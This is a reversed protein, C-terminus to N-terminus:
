LRFDSRPPEQGRCCGNQCPPASEGRASVIIRGAPVGKAVLAAKAAEARRLSLTPNYHESGTADTYGVVRIPSRMGEWRQPIREFAAMLRANQSGVEKLLCAFMAAM